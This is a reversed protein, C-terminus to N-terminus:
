REKFSKDLGKTIPDLFYQLVSRQGTKLEVTGQLGSLSTVGEPMQNVELRVLYVNGLQEDSVSTQSIYRVKCQVVGYEDYDYAELKMKADMGVSVDSIDKNAVYCVVEMPEDTPVISVLEQMSTVVSQEDVLLNCVCGSIPAKIKQNEKALTIQSLEAEVEALQQNIDALKATVSAVYSTKKDSIEIAKKEAEIEYQRVILKQSSIQATLGLQEYQKLQVNAQEASIKLLELEKELYKLSNIYGTHSEIIASVSAQLSEEYDNVVIQVSDSQVAQYVGKQAMLQKQKFLLPTEQAVLSDEDYEMIVTGAEVYEGESVNIYKIQGSGQAKIVSVDGQPQLTGGTTVVTDLKSFAAWIVAVILLSLTGWIIVAGAKHAPREIIELLSPMFDYRLEDERKRSHKLVYDTLKNDM